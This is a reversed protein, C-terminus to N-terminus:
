KQNAFYIFLVTEIAEDQDPAPYVSLLSHVQIAQQRDLEVGFWAACMTKIYAYGTLTHWYQYETSVSHEIQKKNDNRM